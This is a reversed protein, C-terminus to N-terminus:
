QITNGSAEAYAAAESTFTAQQIAYAQFTLTPSPLANGDADQMDSEELNKSVTVMGNAYDGEGEGKLVYEAFASGDNVAHYYVKAGENNTGLLTWISTDVEYKLKLTTGDAEKATLWNNEKVDVFVYYAVGDTADATVKPDKAINVGPIIQAENNTPKTEGLNVTIDTPKFTNKVETTEAKLYAVTGAVTMAMLLVAALALALIKKTKM